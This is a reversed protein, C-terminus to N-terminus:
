SEPLQVPVYCIWFFNNVEYRLVKYMSNGTIDSFISKYFQFANCCCSFFTM